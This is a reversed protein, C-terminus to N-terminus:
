AEKAAQEAKVVGDGDDLEDAADDEAQEVMEDLKRKKSGGKSKSAGTPRGRKVKQKTTHLDAM